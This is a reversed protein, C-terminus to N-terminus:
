KSRNDDPLADFRALAEGYQRLAVFGLLIAFGLEALGGWLDNFAGFYNDGMLVLIADNTYTVATTVIFGCLLSASLALLAYLVKNWGSRLPISLAIMMATIAGIADFVFFTPPTVYNPNLRAGIYEALCCIAVIFIPALASARARHRGFLPASEECFAFIDRASNRTNAYAIAIAIATTFILPGFLWAEPENLLVNNQHAFQSLSNQQFWGFAGSLLFLGFMIPWLTRFRSKVIALTARRAIM